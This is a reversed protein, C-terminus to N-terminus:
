TFSIVHMYQGPNRLSGMLLFILLKYDQDVLVILGTSEYSIIFLSSSLLIPILLSFGRFYLCVKM